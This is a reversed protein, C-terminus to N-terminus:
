LSFLEGLLCAGSGIVLSIALDAFFSYAYDGIKESQLKCENSNKETGLWKVIHITMMSGNYLVGIPAAVVQLPLYVIARFAARLPKGCTHGWGKIKRDFIDIKDLTEDISGRDEVRRSEYNSPFLIDSNAIFQILKYSFATPPNNSKSAKPEEARQGNGGLNNNDYYTDTAKLM